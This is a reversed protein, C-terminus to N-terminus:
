PRATAQLKDPWTCAQNRRGEELAGPDLIRIQRTGSSAIIGRRKLETLSRCVTEVSLGLYDAIDYRSMPLVIQGPPADSLREAFRLLFSGVKKLATTRGLILIQEQLQAIGQFSIERVERAFQPNSDALLEVGRRPYCALLSGEIVAEVSFSHDPIPYGFFDGPLLLGIIQCRGSPWIAYRRAMGTLVCYWYDAAGEQSCVEQGRSWRTIVALSAAAEFRNPRHRGAPKSFSSSDSGASFVQATM